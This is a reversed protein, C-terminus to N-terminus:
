PEPGLLELHSWIITSPFRPLFLALLSALVFRARAACAESGCRIRASVRIVVKQVPGRPLRRTTRSM